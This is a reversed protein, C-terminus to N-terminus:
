MILFERKSHQWWIKSFQLKSRSVCTHSASLADWAISWITSGACFSCRLAKGNPDKKKPLGRGHGTRARSAANRHMRDSDAINCSTGPGSVHCNSSSIGQSVRSIWDQVASESLLVRRALRYVYTAERGFSQSGLRKRVRRDSQACVRKLCPTTDYNRECRGSRIKGPTLYHKM